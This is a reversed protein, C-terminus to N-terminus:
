LKNQRDDGNEIQILIEEIANDILNPDGNEEIIEKLVKIFNETKILFPIQRLPNKEFESLKTSTFTKKNM